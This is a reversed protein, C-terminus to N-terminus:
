LEHKAPGDRRLGGLIAADNPVDDIMLVAVNDRRIDISPEQIRLRIRADVFGVGVDDCDQEILVRVDPAAMEQAGATGEETIRIVRQLIWSVVVADGEGRPM